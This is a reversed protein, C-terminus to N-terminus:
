RWGRKGDVRCPPFDAVTPPRLRPAEDEVKGLMPAPTPPGEPLDPAPLGGEARRPAFHSCSFQFLLSFSWRQGGTSCTVGGSGALALAAAHEGCVVPSSVGVWGGVLGGRM